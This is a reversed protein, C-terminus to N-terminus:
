QLIKEIEQRSKLGLKVCTRKMLSVAEANDIFIVM